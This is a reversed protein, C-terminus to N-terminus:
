GWTVAAFGFHRGRGKTSRKPIPHCLMATNVGSTVHHWLYALFDCSTSTANGSIRVGKNGLEPCHGWISRPLQALRSRGVAERTNYMPNLVSWKAVFFKGFRCHWSSNPEVHFGFDVPNYLIVTVNQADVHLHIKVSVSGWFFMFFSTCVRNKCDWTSGM